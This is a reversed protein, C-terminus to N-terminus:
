LPGPHLRRSAVQLWREDPAGPLWLVETGLIQSGSCEWIAEVEHLVSRVEETPGVVILDDVYTGLYAKVKGDLDVIKWVNAEALQEM